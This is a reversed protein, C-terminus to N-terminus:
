NQRFLSHCNNCNANVRGAADKIDKGGKGAAAKAFALGLVRMEESMDLWAKKNRKGAFDVKGHAAHSMEGMAAIWYGMTELSASQKAIGGPVERALDRIMMEIGDKGPNALAIPGAGLGEKSRLKFMKMLKALEDINKVADVATKKAADQNGKRFEEGIEKVVVDVPKGKKGQGHTPGTFAILGLVAASVLGITWMRVNTKM